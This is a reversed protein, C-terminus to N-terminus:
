SIDKTAATYGADTITGGKKSKLFKDTKSGSKIIKSAKGTRSLAKAGPIAKLAEIFTTKADGKRAAEGIKIGQGPANVFDILHDFGVRGMEDNAGAKYNKSNVAMGRNKDRIYTFPSQIFNTIGEYINQATSQPTHATIQNRKQDETLNNDYWQRIVADSAGKPFPSGKSTNIKSDELFMKNTMDVYEHQTRGVGMNNESGKADEEHFINHKAPGKARAKLRRLGNNGFKSM